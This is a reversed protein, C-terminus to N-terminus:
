HEVDRKCIYIYECMYMHVFTCMIIDTYMYIYICIHMCSRSVSPDTSSMVGFLRTTPSTSRLSRGSSKAEGSLVCADLVCVCACEFVRVSVCVCACVWVCV